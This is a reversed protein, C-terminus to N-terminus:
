SARLVPVLRQHTLCRWVWEFPGYRFVSLWLPSVILQALWIWAVVPVLGAINMQGFWPLNWAESLGHPARGGYFLATMILSQSLYNSFAMRGCCALPHLLVRGAGTRGVLILLSAYGLSVPLCLLTNAIQDRGYIDPVAFSKAVAQSAQAAIAVLSLGGAAIFALYTGTRGEGSLVGTKYLGLGLMMGGLTTPLFYLTNVFVGDAWEASNGGLSGFFGARMAAIKAPMDAAQPLDAPVLGLSPLILLAAGGLLLLLGCVILVPADVKQWRWMVFGTIAYTLLIDGNWILAGHILGFVLLWGLRRLLVPNHESEGKGVLWISIGFLLTFLTVFKERCFVQILWWAGIDAQSLPVPSLAPNNYVDIPQAFAIANVILIGLVSLGRIHDLCLIRGNPETGGGAM